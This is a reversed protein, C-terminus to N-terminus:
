VDTWYGSCWACMDGGLKIGNENDSGRNNRGIGSLMAQRQALIVCSHGRRMIDLDEFQELRDM